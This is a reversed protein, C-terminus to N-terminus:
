GWPTEAIHSEGMIRFFNWWDEQEVNEADLEPRTLFRRTEFITSLQTLPKKAGIDNDAIFWLAEEAASRFVNEAHLCAIEQWEISICGGGHSSIWSALLEHHHALGGNAAYWEELLPLRAHFRELAVEAPAVPAAEEFTQGRVTFQKLAIDEPAFLFWWLLPVCGASALLTHEGPKFAPNQFSPYIQDSDCRTLYARNAM